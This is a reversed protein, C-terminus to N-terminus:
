VRTWLIRFFSFYRTTLMKRGITPKASLCVTLVISVSLCSFLRIQSTKDGEEQRRFAISILVTVSIEYGIYLFHM